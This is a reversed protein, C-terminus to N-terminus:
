GAPRPTRRRDTGSHATCLLTEIRAIEDRCQDLKSDALAMREYNDVTRAFAQVSKWSNRLRQWSGLARELSQRTNTKAREFQRRNM